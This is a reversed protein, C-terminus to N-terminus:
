YGLQAIEVPEVHLSRCERLIRGAFRRSQVTEVSSRQNAVVPPCGTVKAAIEPVPSSHNLADYDCDHGNAQHAQRDQNLHDKSYQDRDRGDAGHTEVARACVGSAFSIV